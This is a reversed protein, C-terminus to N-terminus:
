LATSGVCAPFLSWLKLSELHFVRQPLLAPPWTMMSNLGHTFTATSHVQGDIQRLIEAFLAKSAAVEALQLTVYRGYRFVQAGVKILKEGTPSM